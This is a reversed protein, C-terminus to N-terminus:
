TGCFTRYCATVEAPAPEAYAAHQPLEDFPQRLAALLQEFPGLDGEDSAASLAQEVRHNRPIVWPNAARLQDVIAEAPRAEAALRARWGLLWATPADADAFLARLPVEDGAAAEALRRWALTFDARQAQLLALWDDALAADAAEDDDRQLGLKIRQGRRLAAEYRAPFADIVETCQAVARQVGAADDADTMLPLLAEALRALNWRAIRPQNAYAYRGQHDISSFVAGPDYAEMFACPGYDITEGSITMNDTNMVGHIFGVNMWQALLAAQREAVARLLGLAPEPTGALAPDHRAISYDALAQLKDLEGRAAFMQFTGVRLHSAAVRTLVAGPLNRDRQVPEGTAAVALARTTPIRLAHMAEGLLVERLMPGVAAKGDGGRSFPTRGSGKFAIDRRQGHRDIVEGLLLARGDGLQPSFNGFQHGAYAQALPMAGEPLRNGAFLAAGDEGQLAQADLRLEEALDHNLYLLRPEPVRAPQWPLYLGELERAYSNDFAIPTPM